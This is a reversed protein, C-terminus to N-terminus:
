YKELVDMLKDHQKEKKSTFLKGFLDLLNLGAPHPAALKLDMKNMGFRNSYNPRRGWITVGELMHAMPLLAITDTLEERDMVRQLYNSNSLTISQFGYPLQFHGSWDTTAVKNTNTYVKVNRVPLGTEIDVVVGNVQARLTGAIFAFVLLLLVKM